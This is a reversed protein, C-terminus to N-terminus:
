WAIEKLIRKRMVKRSDNWLKPSLKAILVRLYLHQQQALCTNHTHTHTYMFSIYSIYISIYPYIHM